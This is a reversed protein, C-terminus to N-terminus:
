VWLSGCAFNYNQIHKINESLLRCSLLNQVSQYCANGLNLRRKIDEQILNQRTITTGLYRFQAVNEFCRNAIKIEHNQGANWHCSLLMNVELGVEKGADIIPATNKKITDINDGLLNLDDACVLLQHRGNLKLGVQNEQVKRIAYELAFNFPLPSLADGQKQGNQTPFNDSLHKGIHVKGYTKNLCMNILRALKM